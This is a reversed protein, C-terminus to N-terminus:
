EEEDLDDPAPAAAANNWPTEGALLMEVIRENTLYRSSRRYWDYFERLYVADVHPLDGVQEWIEQPIHLATLGPQLEKTYWLPEAGPDPLGPLRDLHAQNGIFHFSLGQQQSIDVAADMASHQRMFHASGDVWEWRDKDRWTQQEPLKLRKDFVVVVGRLKNIRVGFLSPTYKPEMEAQELADDVLDELQEQVVRTLRVMERDVDEGLGIEATASIEPRFNSYNGLNVTEGLKITITTIRM